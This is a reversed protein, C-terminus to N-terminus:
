AATAWVDLHDECRLALTVEEMPIEFSEAVGRADKRPRYADLVTALSFGSPLLPEGFRRKPDMVVKGIEDHYLTFEQAMCTTDDFRIRDIYMQAVNAMMGQGRQKGTVKTYLMEDENDEDEDKWPLKIWIAKGDYCSQHKMAFPYSVAYRSVAEKYATRILQLSPPPKQKRLQRVAICQIFDLFTVTRDPDDYIQSQVVAAGRKKSGYVWRSIMETTVRAYHAAEAPTYIGVGLLDADPSLQSEVRAIM